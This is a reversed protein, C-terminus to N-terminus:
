KVARVSDTESGAKHSPEPNPILQRLKYKGIAMSEIDTKQAITFKKNDRSVVFEIKNIRQDFPYSINPAWIDKTTDKPALSRNIPVIQEGIVIHELLYRRDEDNEASFKLVAVGPGTGSTGQLDLFVYPVQENNVNDSSDICRMIAERLKDGMTKQHEPKILMLRKGQINFPMKLKEWKKPIIAIFICREYGRARIAYGLECMVNPNPFLKGGRSLIPTVDAVFVTSMDIKKFIIDLIDVAGAVGKTDRDLKLLEDRQAPVIKANIGSIAIDIAKQIERSSDKDDDQWSFFVTKM